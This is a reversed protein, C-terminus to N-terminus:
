EASQSSYADNRFKQIDRLIKNKQIQLMTIRDRKGEATLPSGEGIKIEGIRRIESNIEKLATDVENTYDHYGIMKSNKELYEKALDREGRNVLSMFTEYAQDTSKKFDYFLDEGGRPVPQSVFAGVIPTERITKAPRREDGTAAEYIVNSSWQAMAGASGFIGRVIHDAEIPNLLRNKKSMFGGSAASLFKGLESTSATYQQWAEENELGRPIVPRGTFFDYNIAIEFPAKIAPPLPTPGLIADTAARGLAKGLRRMDPESETGWKVVKGYILEPIAKFFFAATTNMPTMIM